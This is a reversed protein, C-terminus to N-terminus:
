CATEVITKETSSFNLLVAASGANTTFTGLKKLDEKPYIENSKDSPKEWNL